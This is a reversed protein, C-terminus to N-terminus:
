HGRRGRPTFCIVSRDGVSWWPLLPLLITGFSTNVNSVSCGALHPELAWCLNLKYDSERNIIDVACPSDTQSSMSQESGPTYFHSSLFHISGRTRMSHLLFSSPFLLLTFTTSFLSPDFMLWWGSERNRMTVECMAPNGEKGRRTNQYMGAM